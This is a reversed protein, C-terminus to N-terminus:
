GSISINPFGAERLRDMVKIITDYKIDDEPSIIIDESDPYKTKIRNLQGALGQWDYGQGTIGLNSFKLDPSKLEFGTQRILLVNLVVSEPKPPAVAASQRDLSPLTLELVAIHVFSATILLFPVLILFVNMVATLNLEAEGAHGRLKRRTSEKINM